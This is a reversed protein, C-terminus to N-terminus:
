ITADVAAQHVSLAVSFDEKSVHEDKYCEKLENISKTMAWTPLLSGINWEEILDRTEASMGDLITTADPHGVIAAEELHYMWRGEVMEVDSGECYYMDPNNGWCWGIWFDNDFIEIRQITGKNGQKEHM